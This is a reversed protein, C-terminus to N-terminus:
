RLIRAPPPSASPTSHDSLWRDIVSKRFRLFKGVKTHPIASQSTWEYIRQRDVRLYAAIGDVDFLEDEATKRSSLLPKLKAIVAEAIADLLEPPFHMHLDM